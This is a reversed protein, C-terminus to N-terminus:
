HSTSEGDWIQRMQESASLVEELSGIAEVQGDKLVVIQAARRQEATPFSSVPPMKATTSANGSYNRPTWMSLVPSTTSSSSKPMACSCAHLPPASFKAVPFNSAGQGWLPKWDWRKLAQQWDDGDLGARIQVFAEAVQEYTPTEAQIDEYHVM